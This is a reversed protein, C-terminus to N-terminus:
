SECSPLATEDDGYWGNSQGFERQVESAIDVVGPFDLSPLTLLGELETEGELYSSIVDFHNFCRVCSPGVLGNRLNINEQERVFSLGTSLAHLM